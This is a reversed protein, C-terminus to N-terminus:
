TIVTGTVTGTRVPWPRFLSTKASLICTGIGFISFANNTPTQGVSTSTWFGVSTIALPIYQMSWNGVTQGEGMLPFLEFKNGNRWGTPYSATTFALSFAIATGFNVATLASVDIYYMLVTSGDYTSWDLLISEPFAGARSTVVGAVDRYVLGYPDPGVYGGTLGTFRFTNGFPNNASLTFFDVSRGAEIDGDDGGVYSVTQGTKLIKAGVPAAGAPVEWERFANLSGTPARSSDVVDVDFDVTAPTSGYASGNVTIDLDPITVNGGPTVTGIQTAASNVVPIDDSGGSAVSSYAQSNVTITADACAAPNPITWVGSVDSGVPTGNVYQVLGVFTGGSVVTGFTVGNLTITGDACLDNTCYESIILSAIDIEDDGCGLATFCSEFGTLTLDYDVSVIKRQGTYSTSFEDEWASRGRDSSGPEYDLESLGLEKGLTGTSADKFAAMLNRIVTDELSYSDDCYLNFDFIAVARMSWTLTQIEDDDIVGDEVSKTPGSLVRHYVLTEEPNVFEYQGSGIYVAPLTQGDNELREALGKVRFGLPKIFVDAYDIISKLM